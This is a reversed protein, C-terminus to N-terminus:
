PATVVFDDFKILTNGGLGSGAGLGVYGRTFTSDSVTAVVEGNVYLSLSNGRCVARIHNREGARIAPSPLMGSGEGTLIRVTRGARRFIAYYGDASVAFYYFNDADVYRCLVGFHGDPAGAVLRADVEVSVDAFKDGQRAWAFWNPTRLEIFYEGNQYGREFQDRQDAGWGSRPNDFSDQFLVGQRSDRACGSLVLILVLLWPGLYLDKRM